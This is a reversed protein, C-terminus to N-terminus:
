QPCPFAEPACRDKLCVLHSDPARWPPYSFSGWAPRLGRLEPTGCGPVPRRAMDPGQKFYSLASGVWKCMFVPFSFQKQARAQKVRVWCRFFIGEFGATVNNRQCEGRGPFHGLSEALSDRGWTKGFPHSQGM